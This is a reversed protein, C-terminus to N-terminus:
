INITRRNVIIDYEGFNNWDAKAKKIPYITDYNDNNSITILESYQWDRSFMYINNKTKIIIAQDFFIHNEDKNIIIEDEVISIETITENVTTKTIDEDIYPKFDQNSVSCEFFSIDDDEGFINVTKEINCIDLNYDEFNLRINGYARNFEEEGSGYEYSIFKKDILNKFANLIDSNFKFKIM